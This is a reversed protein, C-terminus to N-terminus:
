ELELRLDISINDFVKHMGLYKFFKTSGYIIGWLTRDFSFSSSLILKEESFSFNAFCVFPKSIGKISLTGELKCNHSTLFAEDELIVKSFSFTAQPFFKTFFFDESNLHNDLYESGQEQTLDTTKISKMDVVFEGSLVNQKSHLFGSSFNIVGKHSGNTNKGIWDLTNNSSLLFKKDPIELIQEEVLKLNKGELFDLSIESLGKKLYYINTYAELSLKEYASKADVDNHNNGYVIIKANKELGLENISSIFSMEYVCINIADKIYVNEYHNQPLVDILTFVDNEKYMRKLTEYNITNM